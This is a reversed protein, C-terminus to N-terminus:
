AASDEATLADFLSPTPPIIRIHILGAFDTTRREVELRRGSPASAETRLPAETYAIGLTQMSVPMAELLPVHRPRFRVALALMQRRLRLELGTVASCPRQWHSRDRNPRMFVITRAGPYLDSLRVNPLQARNDDPFNRVPRERLPMENMMTIAVRHVVIRRVKLCHRARLVKLFVAVLMKRYLLRTSYISFSRRISSASPMKPTVSLM